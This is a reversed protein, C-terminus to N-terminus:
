VNVGKRRFYQPKVAFIEYYDDISTFHYVKAFGPTGVETPKVTVEALCLRQKMDEPHPIGKFDPGFLAKGLGVLTNKSRWNDQGTRNDKMWYRLNAEADAFEGDIGVIKIRFSDAFLGEADKGIYEADAIIVPYLGTMTFRKTEQRSEYESGSFEWERTDYENEM